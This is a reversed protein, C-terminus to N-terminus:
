KSGLGIKWCKRLNKSDSSSIKDGFPVRDKKENGVLPKLTLVNERPFIDNSIHSTITVMTVHISENM